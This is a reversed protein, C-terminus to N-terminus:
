PMMDSKERPALADGTMKNEGRYNFTKRPVFGIPRAVAVCAENGIISDAIRGYTIEVKLGM